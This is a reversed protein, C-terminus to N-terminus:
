NPVMQLFPIMIAKIGGPIPLGDCRIKRAEDLLEVPIIAYYKRTDAYFLSKLFLVLEEAYNFVFDDTVIKRRLPSKIGFGSMADVLGRGHGNVGYYLIITKNLEAALKQYSQFVYQCCYQSSCNDFNYLFIYNCIQLLAIVELKYCHLSKLKYCHLSKWHMNIENNSTM